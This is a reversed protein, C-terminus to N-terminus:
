SRQSKETTQRRLVSRGETDGRAGIAEALLPPQANTCDCEFHARLVTTAHENKLIGEMGLTARRAVQM